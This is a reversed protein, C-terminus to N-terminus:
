RGIHVSSDHTTTQVDSVTESSDSPGPVRFHHRVRERNSPRLRQVYFHANASMFDMSNDEGDFNPDDGDVDGHYLGFCHGLEHAINYLWANSWIQCSTTTWHLDEPDFGNWSWWSNVGYYTSAWVFDEPLLLIFYEIHGRDRYQNRHVGTMTYALNLIQDTRLAGYPGNHPHKCVPPYSNGALTQTCLLSQHDQADAIQLSYELARVGLIALAKHMLIRAHQLADDSATRTGSEVNEDAVHVWVPVLTIHLRDGPDAFISTSYGCFVLALWIAININSSKM